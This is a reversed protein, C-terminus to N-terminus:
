RGCARARAALQGLEVELVLVRREPELRELVEAPLVQEVAEGAGLATAALLGARGVVGALREIGLFQMMPMRWMDTFASCPISMMGFEGITRSVYPRSSVVTDAVARALGITSSAIGYSATHSQTVQPAQTSAQGTRMSCTSLITPSRRLRTSSSLRNGPSSVSRRGTSPSGPCGTPGASSPAARSSWAARTRPGSRRTSPPPPGAPRARRARSPRSRPPRRCACGSPRWPPRSTGARPPRASRPGRGPPTTCRRDRRPPHAVVVDELHERHAVDLREVPVPHPLPRDHGGARVAEVRQAVLVALQAPRVLDDM